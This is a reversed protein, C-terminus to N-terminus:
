PNKIYGGTSGDQSVSSISTAVATPTSVIYPGTGIGVQYSTNLGWGYLTKSPDVAFSVDEGATVTIWSQSSILTPSYTSYIGVQIPNSRQITTNDGLQGLDGAGVTYLQGSTDIMAACSNGSQAPNGYNFNTSIQTPSSRNILDNLGLKGNINNGWVWLTGDERKAQISLNSTNPSGEIDTWAYIGGVLVPSTQNTTANNGIYIGTGMGWLSGDARIIHSTTHSISVKKYTSTGLQTPSSRAVADNLGLQGVNNYGWVYLYGNSAIAASTLQGASLTIYSLSTVIAPTSTNTRNNSGLQGDGNLGWTHLQMNSDIAMSHSSGTTIKTFIAGSSIQVPSSRDITDSLGLQGYLNSGWSFINGNAKLAMTFSTGATVNIYTNDSGIQSILSRNITDNTGLQGYTNEGWSWITGDARLGIFYNLGAAIKQWSYRADIPNTAAYGGWGYLKNDNKLALAHRYGASIQTYSTSSDITTPSFNYPYADPGVVLPSSTNVTGTGLKGGAYTGWVYLLNISSLTTIVSAGAQVQTYSNTNVSTLEIPIFAYAMTATNIQVPSSLLNSGANGNNLGWSWINAIIPKVALSNIEGSSILTWSSSGIQVPSSRSITTGDGVQGRTNIGWSWLINTSTTASNLNTGAAIKSWVNGSGIQIPSSELINNSYWISRIFQPSSKNTVTGDGLGGSANNGWTYLATDSIGLSGEGSTQLIYWSTISGAIQVPSSRNAITGYGLQGSDNRGWGYGTGDTLLGLTHGQGASVQSWDSTGIQVPSSRTVLDGFGLQGYVNSGWAFLKGDSRIATSFSQGASVFTWSSTGVQVPSSRSIISNDGLQGQANIGWAWLTSDTRIGISFGNGATITTWSESGIQIPSSKNIKYLLSSGTQVPSSRNLTDNQGLQGAANLGWVYLDYAIALSHNGNASIQSYSSTGIQIPSSRNITIGVNLGTQGSANSGWAYLNGTSTIAMSHSAGASVIIWSGSEIGSGIQIPSSKDIVTNDGLQGTANTGWAYLKKDSTIALSHSNGASVQSWSSSGIQVPSSRNVTTGDGLQGTANTGWTYLSNTLTIAMSHSIGATVSNWSGSGIQIPSSRSIVTGNGLQGSSNLGWAWLTGNYAVALVHQTISVDNWGGVGLQIPSSRNITAAQGFGLVGNTNTGWCWLSDDTRIGFSANNGASIKKWMMEGIQVPSSRSIATSDGVQGSTNFGWGFLINDSRIALTHSTGASISKWSLNALEGASNLGWGWLTNDSRIALSHSVGAAIQIWSYDSSILVPTSKNVTTGDGLIGQSNYGWAWLSNDTKIALTHGLTNTTTKARAILIYSGPIQVPNSRNLITGDGIQGVDNAGWAFLSNDGSRLYAQSDIQPTVTGTTLTTIGLQRLSNDGWAYMNGTTTIGLTHSTGASVASWSSSGIQVPSSRYQILTASNIQVPSSRTVSTGNSINRGWAYLNKLTGTTGPVDGATIGLTTSLSIAVISWSLTGIQTPSSRAITTGLGLTGRGNDAGWGLITGDLRTALTGFLGTTVSSFFNNPAVQVPSSRYTPVIANQGLDGNSNTGWGWLTNDSKIAFGNLAGADAYRWTGLLQIPSTITGTSNNGLTGYTNDGWSWLSNDSKIGFAFSGFGSPTTSNSILTWSGSVQTPSSRTIQDGLGLQGNTNDGWTYLRGSTDIAAANLSGVSLKSWNTNVGMQVPSSRATGIGYADWLVGTQNFGWGWLTGNTQIGIAYSQGVGVSSWSGPVQVPSSRATTAAEGTGFVGNRNTGWVWLTSDSRLAFSVDAGGSIGGKDQFVTSWQYPAISTGLQGLTDDGWGFLKGATDIVFSQSGNASIQTYSGTGSTILQPTANLRGWTYVLNTNTLALTEDIGASIATYSLVPAATIQIPSSRSVSNGVIGIYGNNLGWAWITYDSRIAVTRSGVASVKLWFGGEDWANIQVPSSRLITTGDGLQGASNLGWLFLRGDSRIAASHSQGASLQTWSYTLPTTNFDSTLLLTKSGWGWLTYDDQIGFSNVASAISYGALTGVSTRWNASHIQVPSSRHIQDNTGLISNDNRGWAYLKNNLKVAFVSVTTAQVISWSSVGVQIPSSRNLTSNNGLQGSSNLGWAWLTNNTRIGYSSVDGISVSTWSGGGTIQVPSSRSITTNDGLQGSTGLGWLYVTSDSKIAAKHSKGASVTIWSGDVQVPSSRTVTTGNGIQGVNNNGWCWLTGDTRIAAPAAGVGGGNVVVMSWTDTSIQTPSSRNIVDNLGLQGTTNIGWGFLIGDTRIALTYEDNGAIQSWSNTIATSYGLQGYTNDGFTVIKYDTTLGVTYNNGADVQLYSSTGIQVPSSLNYYLYQGTQGLTGAGWAWLTNDSKLAVVHSQGAGISNWSITNVQVPSSRYANSPINVGLEGYQSYGWGFLLNDSRLALSYNLGTHVGIWTSSGIQIPSSKNIIDNNGLQGYNNTGWAYLKGDVGIALAHSIGISVQKFNSALLYPSPIYSNSFASLQTPNSRNTTVSM